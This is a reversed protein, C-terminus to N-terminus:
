ITRLKFIQTEFDAIVTGIKCFFQLNILLKIRINPCKTGNRWVSNCKGDWKTVKQCDGSGGEVCRLRDAM